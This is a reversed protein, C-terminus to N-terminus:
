RLSRLQGGSCYLFIPKLNKKLAGGEGRRVIFFVQFMNKKKFLCGRESSFGRVFYELNEDNTGFGAVHTKHAPLEGPACVGGGGGELQTASIIDPVPLSQQTIKDFCGGGGAHCHALRAPQWNPLTKYTSRRPKIAPLPKSGRARCKM